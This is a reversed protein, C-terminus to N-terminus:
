VKHKCILLVSINEMSPCATFSLSTMANVTARNLQHVHCYIPLGMSSMRRMLSLSLVLLHGARRYEPLTYAMRLEYLEDSLIWAVPRGRFILGSRRNVVRENLLLGKLTAANKTFVTCIDPIAVSSSRSSSCQKQRYCIATTFTPWSDVCMELHCSNNHLIHLVGGLVPMSQVETIRGRVGEVEEEERRWEGDGGGGGGDGRSFFYAACARVDEKLLKGIECHCLLRRVSLAGGTVRECTELSEAIM